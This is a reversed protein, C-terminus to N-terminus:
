ILINNYHKRHNEVSNGFQWKKLPDTKPNVRVSQGIEQEPLDKAKRDKHYYIKTKQRKHRVNNIVDEISQSFYAVVTIFPM